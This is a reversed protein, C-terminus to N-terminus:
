CRVINSTEQNTEGHTEELFFELNEDENDNWYDDNDEESDLLFEIDFNEDDLRPIVNLENSVIDQLYEFREQCEKIDLYILIDPKNSILDIIEEIKTSYSQIQAFLNDKKVPDDLDEQELAILCYDLSGLLFASNRNVDENELYDMLDKIYSYIQLKLKFNDEESRIHNSYVHNKLQSLSHNTFKSLVEKFTNIYDETVNELIRETVFRGKDTIQFIWRGSDYFMEILGKSDLSFADSKISISYPGYDEKIFEYDIPIQGEVKALYIYKQLYFHGQIEDLEDLVFLIPWCRPLNTMYIIYSIHYLIYKIDLDSM